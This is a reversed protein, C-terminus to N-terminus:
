FKRSAVVDRNYIEDWEDDMIWENDAPLNEISVANKLVRQRNDKLFNRFDDFTENKKM